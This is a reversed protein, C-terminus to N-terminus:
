HGSRVPQSCFGRGAQANHLTYTGPDCVAARICGWARCGTPGPHAAPNPEAEEDGTVKLFLFPLAALTVKLFSFYSDKKRRGESTM